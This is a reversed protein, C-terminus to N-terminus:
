NLLLMILCGGNRVDASEQNGLCMSRKQIDDRIDVEQQCQYKSANQASLRNLPLDLLGVYETNDVTRWGQRLRLFNPDWEGERCKSNNNRQHGRGPHFPERRNYQRGSSGDIRQCISGISSAVKEMKLLIFNIKARLCFDM